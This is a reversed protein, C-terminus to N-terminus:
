PSSLPDCVSVFELLVSLLHHLPFQSLTFFLAVSWIVISPFVLSFYALQWGLVRFPEPSSRATGCFSPQSVRQFGPAPQACTMCGHSERMGVEEEHGQPSLPAVLGWVLCLFM